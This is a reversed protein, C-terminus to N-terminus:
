KLAQGQPDIFLPYMRTHQIIIANEISVKDSPLGSLVWNQLTIPDGLM